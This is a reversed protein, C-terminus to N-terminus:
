IPLPSGGRTENSMNQLRDSPWLSSNATMLSKYALPTQTRWWKQGPPARLGASGHWCHFPCDTSSEGAEEPEPSSPTEAANRAGEKEARKWHTLIDGPPGLGHRFYFNPLHCPDLHQWLFLINVDFHCALPKIKGEIWVREFIMLVWWRSDRRYYQGEHGAARHLQLHLEAAWVPQTIVAHGCVTQELARRWGWCGGRVEAVQLLLNLALWCLGISSLSTRWRNKSYWWRKPTSIEQLSALFSCFIIERAIVAM